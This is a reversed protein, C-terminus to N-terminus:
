RTNLIASFFTTNVPARTSYETMIKATGFAGFKGPRIQGCKTLSLLDIVRGLVCFPLVDPEAIRYGDVCAAGNPTWEAEFQWRYSPDNAYPRATDRAQIGSGDYINLMTGNLTWSNGDGCYDARLMRVCSQHLERGGAAWPKYGFEVCKALAYGRSAFTIRGGDSWAGGWPTGLAAESTNWEGALPIVLVEQGVDDVFMPEWGTDLAGYMAYAAVGASLGSANVVQAPGDIRMALDLQGAPSLVASGGMADIAVGDILIASGQLSLRAGEMVRGDAGEVHWGAGDIGSAGLSNGNWARGNWARGNWARGNWARGNWARGNWARLDARTEAVQPTTTTDGGCASVTALASLTWATNLILSRYM